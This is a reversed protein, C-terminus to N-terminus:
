VNSLMQSVGYKCLFWFSYPVRLCAICPLSWQLICPWLVDRNTHHVEEYERMFLEQVESSPWTLQIVYYVKVNM